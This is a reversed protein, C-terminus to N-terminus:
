KKAGASKSAFIEVVKQNSLRGYTNKNIMMTPALACAGICAVTELTYEMDPTNEGEKIGLRDQVAKLIDIGGKVHCATGRCVMVRNRGTPKTRFQAYFTVVGFVESPPIHLSQSVLAITEPSIYGFSEQIEQLLAILGTRGDQHQAIIDALKASM